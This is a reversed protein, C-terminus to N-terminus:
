FLKRLDFQLFDEVSIGGSGVVLSYKPSYMQRFRPLGANTTQHGGKVEIAVISQQHVLVFDVELPTDRWYLVKYDWEAAHGVLYAGVASEVWRGWRDPTTREQAFGRGACVSMLATNYVQYKPVSNYKRANDVAYKQLGCLLEAEDLLTLYSALTTVNGADTLQGLMKNFSLLEGSYGCGLEFLQRLVAPKYITTTLLVDKSIAPEVISDKLYKRWRAENKILHASGPYGGYYIYQDLTWGFAEKMEAYNWHGVRILEFRGALSESLGKKLLLRSSGLLVVKLNVGNFTDLDWERKVVESWNDIKQIEDIVLLYEEAGSVLLKARASEWQVSIWAGDDSSAADATVFTHPMSIDEMLQRVLTTKGVQRPGALVQLFHRPEEIREKLIKYQSRKIM